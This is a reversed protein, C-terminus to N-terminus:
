NRRTGREMELLAQKRWVGGGYGGVAGGEHVVRHCPVVIAIRNMGNARGVARYARMSGVQEALDRYTVTRGYPIKMLAKWVRQQFETGPYEVPVSFSRNKGAFYDALESRLRALLDNEGPVLPCRFHRRLALFQSELMRRETFELLVLRDRTAGAILPGLPSEIWALTITETNRSKGPPAGFTRRFADRFGSHSDYGYGLAVDDIPAGLRIQELARALRRSRCYAQFTMGHRRKFFNRLRAPDVGMGRIEADSM